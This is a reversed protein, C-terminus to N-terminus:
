GIPLKVSSWEAEELDAGYHFILSALILVIGLCVSCGGGWDDAISQPLVFVACVVSILIMAVVPLVIVWIGLQRIQEAGRHTFPTGDYQEAKLYRYASGFLVGDTLGAIMDVLLVVILETVGSTETLSYLLRPEVGVVSGDQYWIVGCLIGFVALGAWVFSLFMFVKTIRLFVRFTKQIVEPQKM